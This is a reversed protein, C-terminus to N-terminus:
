SMPNNVDISTSEKNEYKSLKNKEKEKVSTRNFIKSSIEYRHIPQLIGILFDRLFINM